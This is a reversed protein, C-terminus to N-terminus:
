RHGGVMPEKKLPIAAPVPAANRVTLGRVITIPVVDGVRYESVDVGEVFSHIILADRTDVRGDGDVDALEMWAGTPVGLLEGYILDVDVLDIQGDRNVDGWLAIHQGPTGFTIDVSIKQGVERINSIAIGSTSGNYALSNPNTSWDFRTNGSSGPFVDGPGGDYGPSDLGARGDAEELDLGKHSTNNQVTNPISRQAIVVSDVHWILLGTGHLHKDSGVRQRNELLFYEGSTTPVDIRVAAGTTEAPEIELGTTDRDVTLVPMWGLEIKSWASMHAPSEPRNWNGSGMLGWHGIGSNSGDTAYLDPLGLAHGFDHAFVGIEIPVTRGCSYAPQIVYDSIRVPRPVGNVLVSDNTVYPAGTMAEIIWRHSWINSTGCEGGEEPHVFAVLDVYGDRDRDYESFDVTADVADLVETLLEGLEKTGLGNLAEYYTDNRSVRVWGHVTGTLTFLGRSMEDYLGTLTLGSTGFLRSQLDAVPYPEAATNAFLITFVPMRYTGAIAVGHRAAARPELASPTIGQLRLRARNARVRALDGKWARRFEFANPDRALQELMWRPPVAGHRRGIELVDQGRAQAALGALGLVTALLIRRGM